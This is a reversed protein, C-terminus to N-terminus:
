SANIREQILYLYMTDPLLLAIVWNLVKDLTWKKKRHTLVLHVVFFTIVASSISIGISTKPDSGLIVSLLIAVITIVLTIIIEKLIPIFSISASKMNIYSLARRTGSLTCYKEIIKPVFGASKLELIDNASLRDIDDERAIVGSKILTRIMENPNYEEIFKKEYNNIIFQMEPCDRTNFYDDYCIKLSEESSGAVFYLINSAKKLASFISQSIKGEKKLQFILKDFEEKSLVDKSKIGNLPEQYKKNVRHNEGYKTIFASIKSSYYSKQLAPNYKKIPRDGIVETIRNIRETVVISPTSLTNQISYYYAQLTNIGRPLRFYIQGNKILPSFSMFVDFEDDGMELLHRCPVVIGKSFLSLITLYRKHNYKKGQMKGLRFFPYYILSMICM